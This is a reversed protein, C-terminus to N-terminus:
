FIRPLEDLANQIPIPTCILAQMQDRTSRGWVCPHTRSHVTVVSICSICFCVIFFEALAYAVAASIHILIPQLTATSDKTRLSVSGKISLPVKELLQSKSFEFQLSCILFAECCYVDRSLYSPTTAFAGCSHKLESKSPFISGSNKKYHSLISM